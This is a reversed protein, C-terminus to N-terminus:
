DCSGLETRMTSARCVFPRSGDAPDFPLTHRLIDHRLQHHDDDRQKGPVLWRCPTVGQCQRDPQLDFVTPHPLNCSSTFQMVRATALTGNVPWLVPTGPSAFWEPRLLRIADFRSMSPRPSLRLSRREVLRWTERISSALFFRSHRSADKVPLQGSPWYKNVKAILLM